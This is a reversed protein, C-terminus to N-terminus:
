SDSPPSASQEPDFAEVLVVPGEVAHVRVPTGVKARKGDGTWKARWLAGDIYVHGEPNLVSRVLGPRGVLDEIAVGEPGAQARLLSTMVFVFFVFVTLTTAGILWPNLQLAAADYFWISGAVFTVTSALTVPGFGAIATDVAYLILGLIVLAVAWSVVPLVTLGFVGIAAMIIGALGAVGFGPQFLEFLLMGIGVVLLLYIFPGTTAAHLMRRVLGLSHFRVDVECARLRLEQQDSGVLVTHGDLEVLLPELGTTVVALGATELEQASVRETLLRRAVEADGGTEDVLRAVAADTDFGDDVALDVPLLPGVSADPALTRIHASAWLVGAAGQAQGASGIPGVFTAVPVRSDSIRAVVADLDASVGGRSSFQFVVLESGNDHALELIDGVQAVVPPDIFGGRLPLVEVTRVDDQPVPPCLGDPTDAQQAHSVSALAVSVLAVMVFLTLARRVHVLCSTSM